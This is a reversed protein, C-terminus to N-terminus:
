TSLKRASTVVNCAQIQRHRANLESTGVTWTATKFQQCCIFINKLIKIFGRKIKYVADFYDLM